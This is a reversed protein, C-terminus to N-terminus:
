AGNNGTLVDVLWYKDVKRLDVECIYEILFQKIDKEKIWWEDGGQQPLRKTGRKTARLHGKLIWRQVTKMDVGFCEALSTASCWPLNQLFRMRKRKLVIAVETRAVGEKKLHRQIVAPCKHAHHELIELEKESWNPEKKQKAILGLEIARRSIKWRPLGLRRALHRVPADGKACSGMGVQELYVRRIEAEIEPTIPYKATM